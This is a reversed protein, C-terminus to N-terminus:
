TEILGSGDVGFNGLASRIRAPSPAVPPEVCTDVTSIAPAIPAAAAAAAAAAAPAVPLHIWAADLARAQGHDGLARLPACGVAKKARSGKM